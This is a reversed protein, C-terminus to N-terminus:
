ARERARESARAAVRASPAHCPPPAAQLRQPAAVGRSRRSAHSGAGRVDRTGGGTTARASVATTHRRLRRGGSQAGRSREPERAVAKAECRREGDVTRGRRAAAPRGIAERAQQLAARVVRRRVAASTRCTCAGGVAPAGNASRYKPQATPAASKRAATSRAMHRWRTLGRRMSGPRCVYQSDGRCCRRSALRSAARTREASAMSTSSLASVSDACAVRAAPSAGATTSSVVTSVARTRSRTAELVDAQDRVGREAPRSSASAAAELGSARPPAM